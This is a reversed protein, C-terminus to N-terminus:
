LLVVVRAIAIVRVLHVRLVQQQVLIAVAVDAQVLVYVVSDGTPVVIKLVRVVVGLVFILSIVIDAVVAVVVVV